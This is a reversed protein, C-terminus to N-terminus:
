AVGGAHRMWRARHAPDALLDSLRAEARAVPAPLHALTGGVTVRLADESREIRVVPSFGRLGQLLRWADQRLQHALRARSLGAAGRPFLTSASLDFRAPWHRALTLVAGERRVLWANRRGAGMSGDARTMQRLWGKM